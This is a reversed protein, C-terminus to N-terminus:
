RRGNGGEYTNGSPNHRKIHDKETKLLDDKTADPKAVSYAVKQENTDLKGNRAHEQQRKRLDNTQGVYEVEGTNKNIHRYEGPKNPITSDKGKIKDTERMRGSPIASGTCNQIATNRREQKKQADSMITKGVSSLVDLLGM